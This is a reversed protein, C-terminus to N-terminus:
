NVQIEVEGVSDKLFIRSNKLREIKWFMATDTEHDDYDMVIDQIEGSSAVAGTLRVPKSQEVYPLFLFFSDPVVFTQVHLLKLNPEEGHQSVAIRLTDPFYKGPQVFVPLPNIVKLFDVSRGILEDHLLFLVQFYLSDSDGKKYCEFEFGGDGATKGQWIPEVFKRGATTVKNVFFEVHELPVGNLVIWGGVVIDDDSTTYRRRLYETWTRFQEPIRYREGETLRKFKSYIEADRPGHALIKVIRELRYYDLGEIIKM